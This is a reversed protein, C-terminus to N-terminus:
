AKISADKKTSSLFDIEKGLRGGLLSSMKYPNTESDDKFEQENLLEPNGSYPRRIPLTTPYYKYYDWPEKYEKKGIVSTGADSGESKPASPCFNFSSVRTQSAAIM